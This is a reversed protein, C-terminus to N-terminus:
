AVRRVVERLSRLADVVIQDAVSEPIGAEDAIRLVCETMGLWDDVFSAMELILGRLREPDGAVWEAPEPAESLFSCPVAKRFSGPTTRKPQPLLRPWHGALVAEPHVSELGARVEDAEAATMRGESVAEDVRRRIAASLEPDADRVELRRQRERWARELGAPEDLDVMRPSM